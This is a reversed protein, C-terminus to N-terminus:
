LHITKNLLYNDLLPGILFELSFYYVKKEGLKHTDVHTKRAKQAILSALVYFRERENTDDLEKGFLNLCLGRYEKIFEKKSRFITNPM